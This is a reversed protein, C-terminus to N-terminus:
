TYTVVMYPYNTVEHRSTFSNWTFEDPDTQRIYMGQARAIPDVYWLQVANLVNFAQWGIGPTPIFNGILGGVGPRTNYTVTLEEWTALPFELTLQKPSVIAINRYLYMMASIITKGPPVPVDWKLLGLDTWTYEGDNYENMVYVNPQSGYNTSGDISRVFTDGSCPYTVTTEGAFLTAVGDTYVSYTNPERLIITGTIPAASRFQLIRNGRAAESMVAAIGIEDVGIKRFVKALNGSAKKIQIFSGTIELRGGSVVTFMTPAQSFASVYSTEIGRAEPGAEKFPSQRIRNSEEYSFRRLTIPKM